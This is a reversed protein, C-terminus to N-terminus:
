GCNRVTVGKMVFGELPEDDSHGQGRVEASKNVFSDAEYNDANYGDVTFGQYERPFVADFRVM